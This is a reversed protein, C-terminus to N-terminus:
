SCGVPVIRAASAFLSVLTRVTYHTGGLNETRTGDVYVTTDRTLTGVVAISLRKGTQTM